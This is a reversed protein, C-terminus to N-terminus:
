FSKSVDYEYRESDPLAKAETESLVVAEPGAFLAVNMGGPDIASRYRIGDLGALELM